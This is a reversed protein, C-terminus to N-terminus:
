LELIECESGVWYTVRCGNSLGADCDMGGQEAGAPYGSKCSLHLAPLPQLKPEARERERGSLPPPLSSSIRHPKSAHMATPLLSSTIRCMGLSAKAETDTYLLGTLNLIM